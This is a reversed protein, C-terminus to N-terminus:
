KMAEFEVVWVEESGNMGGHIEAWADWFAFNDKFGEAHADAPSIKGLRERRVDLIKVHAFPEGFRSTRCQHIAGVNWRKKGKRRTQTKQGSLIPEIFRPKFLM